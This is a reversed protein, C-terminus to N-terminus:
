LMRVSTKDTLMYPNKCSTTKSTQSRTDTTLVFSKLCPIHRALLKRFHNQFKKGVFTYFVPSICCYLFALNRTIFHAYDLTDSLCDTPRSYSMELAQLLIVVNYPTWCIFFTLVIVFILKVARCKERMRTSLVRVTIRVYCYLVIALPIMFFMIFQQYYGFLKWKTMSNQDYGLDECLEGYKPDSRTDHLILEKVSSALSVVWVVVSSSIAYAKRRQKAATVAHVVALYRDFTMLTLFLISSYFGVSFLSSVLKCMTRGFIWESAHYVAYFPLSCAFLLDSIVLNLLFINTVTGLKEYKYIIYLVLGNGLISIIFNMYFFPPLYKAGFHVVDMKQCLRVHGSEVYGLNTEVYSDNGALFNLFDEYNTDIDSDMTSNM